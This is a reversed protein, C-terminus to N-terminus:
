KKILKNYIKLDTLHEFIHHSEFGNLNKKKIQNDWIVNVSFKKEKIERFLNKNLIQVGTYIYDLNSDRYLKMGRFQFDGSFRKDFSYKKNVVLLLNDLNKKEYYNIMKSITHKYNEVWLTDPNMVLFDNGNVYRIMNKIGGGTDLIEKGDNIIEINNKFKQFKLFNIIQDSLYFTNIKLKEIGLSLVLEIAQNLLISDNIEILPKPKSLTLPNLRKGYGACLILATKITM